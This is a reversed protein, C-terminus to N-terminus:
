SGPARYPAAIREFRPNGRLRAYEPHARVRGHGSPGITAVYQELADLAGETDNALLRARATLELFYARTEAAGGAGKEAGRDIWGRAEDHRGQLAFAFGALAPVQPDVTRAALQQYERGAERAWRRAGASDGRAHLIQAFVLARGPADDAFYDVGLKLVTDQQAADLVWYFDGFMSTHALLRERGAPPDAANLRRRATGVDGASIAAMIYLNTINLDGPALELARELPEAAEDMRGALVLLGGLTRQTQLSRPDILAARRLTALAAEGKGDNSEFASLVRLFAADNPFREVAELALSHAKPRDREISNAFQIRASYTTPAEPALAMARELPARVEAIDLAATSVAALVARASALRGWAMAFMSDRRVAQELLGIIQRISEPDRGVIAQAQLYLNYAELDKTPEAALRERDPTGLAVDLAGSVRGAIQEQV